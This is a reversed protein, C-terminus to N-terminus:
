PEDGGRSGPIGAGHGLLPLPLMQEAAFQPPIDADTTRVEESWDRWMDAQPPDLRTQDLDTKCFDYLLAQRIHPPDSLNRGAM